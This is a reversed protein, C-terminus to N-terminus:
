RRDPVPNTLSRKKTVALLQIHQLFKDSRRICTM